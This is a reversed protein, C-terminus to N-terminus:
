RNTTFHKRIDCTSVPLPVLVLVPVPVPCCTCQQPPPQVTPIVTEPRSLQFIWMLMRSYPPCQSSSSLPCPVSQCLRRPCTPPSNSVVPALSAGLFVSHEPPCPASALHRHWGPLGPAQPCPPPLYPPHCLASLLRTLSLPFIRDKSFCVRAEPSFHVSSFPPLIHDDPFDGIAM